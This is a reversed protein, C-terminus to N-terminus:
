MECNRTYTLATYESFKYSKINRNTIHLTIYCHILNGKNFNECLSSIFGLTILVVLHYFSSLCLYFYFVCPFFYRHSIFNLILDKFHDFFSFRFFEIINRLLSLFYLNENNLKFYTIESRFYLLLINHIVKNWYVQFDTSVPFHYFKGFTLNFWFLLCMISETNFM